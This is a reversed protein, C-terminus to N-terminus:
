GLAATSLLAAKDQVSDKAAEATDCAHWAVLQMLQCFVIKGLSFIFHKPNCMMMLM